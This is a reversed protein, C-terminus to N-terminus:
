MKCTHRHATILLLETGFAQGTVFPCMQTFPGRIGGKVAYVMAGLLKLIPNNPLAAMWACVSKVKKQREFTNFESAVGAVVSFKSTQLIM